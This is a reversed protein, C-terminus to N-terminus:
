VGHDIEVTALDFVWDRNSIETGLELNPKKQIWGEAAVVLAKTTPDKVQISVVGTGDVQDRNALSNLVLNSNSSQLLTLTMSGSRDASKVRTVEGYAGVVKTFAESAREVTVFTGDAFGSIINTTTDDSITVIVRQPDYTVIPM